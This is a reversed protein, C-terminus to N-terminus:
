FSATSRLHPLPQVVVGVERTTGNGHGLHKNVLAGLILVASHGGLCLLGLDTFVRQGSM